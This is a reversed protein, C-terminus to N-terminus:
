KKIFFVKDTQNNSVVQIVYMGASLKESAIALRTIGANVNIAKKSILKGTIDTVM